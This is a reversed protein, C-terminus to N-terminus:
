HRRRVFALARGLLGQPPTAARARENLEPAIVQLYARQSAAQEAEGCEDLFRARAQLFSIVQQRKDAIALLTQAHKEEQTRTM